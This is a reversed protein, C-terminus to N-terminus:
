PKWCKSLEGKMRDLQKKMGELIAKGRSQKKLDELLNQYYELM